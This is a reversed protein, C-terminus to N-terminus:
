IIIKLVLFGSLNWRTARGAHAFAVTCKKSVRLSAISSGGLSYVKIVLMSRINAERCHGGV